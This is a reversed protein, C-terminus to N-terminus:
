SWHALACICIKEECLIEDQGDDKIAALILRVCVDRGKKFREVINKFNSEALVKNYPDSRSAAMSIPTGSPCDAFLIRIAYADMEIEEL